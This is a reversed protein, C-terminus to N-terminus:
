VFKRVHMCVELLLTKGEIKLESVVLVAVLFIGIMYEVVHPLYMSVNNEM